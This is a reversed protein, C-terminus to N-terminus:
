KKLFTLVFLLRKEVTKKEEESSWKLICSENIIYQAWHIKLVSITNCAFWVNVTPGFYFSSFTEWWRIRIRIRIFNFITRTEVWKIQIYCYVVSKTREVVVMWRYSKPRFSVVMHTCLSLALSTKELSCVTTKKEWEEDIFVNVNGSISLSWICKGAARMIMYINFVLAEWEDSSIANQTEGDERNTSTEVKVLKYVNENTSKNTRENM